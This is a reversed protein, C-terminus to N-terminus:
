RPLCLLSATRLISTGEMVLQGSDILELVLRRHHKERLDPGFEMALEASVEVFRRCGGDLFKLVTRKAQDLSVRPTRQLSFLGIQAGHAAEEAAEYMSDETTSVADNIKAAGHPSDTCHILYYKPAAYYSARIPISQVYRFRAEFAQLFAQFLLLGDPTWGEPMTRMSEEIASTEIGLRELRAKFHPAAQQSAPSREHARLWGAWRPLLTPDARFLVETRDREFELLPGLAAPELEEFAFPDIFVLLPATGARQMIEPLADQFRKHYLVACAPQRETYKAMLAALKTFAAPEPECAHVVLRHGYTQLVKEDNWKAAILPSGESGDGYAGEGACGDLFILEPHLRALKYVWIRLYKELIEHKFRSWERRSGFFSEAM